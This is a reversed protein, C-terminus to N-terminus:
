IYIGYIFDIDIERERDLFFRKEREREGEEGRDGRLVDERERERERWGFFFRREGYM